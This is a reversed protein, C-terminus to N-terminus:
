PIPELDEDLQNSLRYRLIRGSETDCIYIIGRSDVTLAQPDVLFGKEEITLFTDVAVTDTGHIVNIVTDITSTEIGAKRFFQGNSDFVQIEQAKSNAVYVFQKDDVAVDAPRSFRFLEMIDNIESQFVSPYTTYTGSTVPRIKHVSFFDGAQSYYINGSYDIDIGLPQNVTGAGTGSESVSSKFVGRHTWIREGNTLKLFHTRQMDVRIIRDHNYDLAYIYNNEDRTASVGSFTSSESEYYIDNFSHIENEGNYYVHPALLSDIVNQPTGWNVDALSWDSDQLYEDWASTFADVAVYGAGENYFSGSVAMEAIGIDNIYQNWIYIRQSGDIFYVNMKQDIDVDIPNIAMQQLDDFDTLAEGDQSFVFISSSGTDAVFVHGDQAISIEVPFQLGMDEDWIPHILLYTTDGAMFENNDNLSEPLQMKEVCAFFVMLIKAIIM